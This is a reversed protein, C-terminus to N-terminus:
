ANSGTEGQEDAPSQQAREQFKRLLEEKQAVPDNGAPPMSGPKGRLSKRSLKRRQGGVGLM